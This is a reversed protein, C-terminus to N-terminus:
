RRLYLECDDFRGASSYHAELFRKLEFEPYLELDYIRPDNSSNMTWSRRWADVIFRPRREELDNMVMDAFFSDLEPEVSDVSYDNVVYQTISFHSAAQLETLSYIEPAWGWVFLRDGEQRLADIRAALESYGRHHFPLSDPRKLSQSQLVLAGGELWLMAVVVAPILRSPRWSIVGLLCVAIVVYAVAIAGSRIMSIRDALLLVIIAAGAVRGIMAGRDIKSFFHAALGLLGAVPPMLFLYYHDFFLNGMKVAMLAALLYLVFLLAIPNDATPLPKRRKFALAAVLLLVAGCYAAILISREPLEWFLMAPSSSPLAGTAAENGLVYSNLRTTLSEIYKPLSGAFLFPLLHMAVATGVGAGYAALRGWATKM